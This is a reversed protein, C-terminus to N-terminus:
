DCSLLFILLGVEEHCWGGWFNHGNHWVSDPIHYDAKSLEHTLMNCIERHIADTPRGAKPIESVVVWEKRQQCLMPSGQGQTWKSRRSSGSAPTGGDGRDKAKAADEEESSDPGSSDEDNEDEQQQQGQGCEVRDGEEDDDNKFCSKGFFTM